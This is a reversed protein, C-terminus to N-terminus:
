DGHRHRQHLHAWCLWHHLVLGVDGPRAGDVTPRPNVELPQPIVHRQSRRFAVAEGSVVGRQGDAGHPLLVPPPVAAQGTVWDAPPAVARGLLEGDVTLQNVADRRSLTKAGSVHRATFRPCLEESFTGAVSLSM